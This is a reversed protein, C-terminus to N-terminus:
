RTKKFFINKPIKLFCTKKLSLLADTPNWPAKKAQLNSSKRSFKSPLTTEWKKKGAGKAGVIMRTLAM